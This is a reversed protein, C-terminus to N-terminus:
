SACMCHPSQCARRRSSVWSMSLWFRVEWYSVSLIKELFRSMWLSKLITAESTTRAFLGCVMRQPLESDVLGVQSVWSTLRGRRRWYSYVVLSGCVDLFAESMSPLSWLFYSCPWPFSSLVSEAIQSTCHYKCSIELILLCVSFSSSHNGPPPILHPSQHTIALSRLTGEPASLPIRFENDQHKCLETSIDFGNFWTRGHTFQMSHSNYTLLVVYGYMCTISCIHFSYLYRFGYICLVKYVCVVTEYVQSSIRRWSFLFLSQM